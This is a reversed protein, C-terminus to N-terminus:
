ITLLAMLLVGIAMIMHAYGLGTIIGSDKMSVAKTMLGIQRTMLIAFINYVLLLALILIKVLILIYTEAVIPMM